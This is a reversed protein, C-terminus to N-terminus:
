DEDIRSETEILVTSADDLSSLWEEFRGGKMLEDWTAVDGNLHLGCVGNSESILDFVDDALKKL